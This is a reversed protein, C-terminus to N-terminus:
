WESNVATFKSWAEVSGHDQSRPLGESIRLRLDEMGGTWPPGRGTMGAFLKGQAQRLAPIWRKRSQRPGGSVRPYPHNEDGQAPRLGM